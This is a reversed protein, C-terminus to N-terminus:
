LLQICCVADMGVTVWHIHNIQETIVGCNVELRPGRCDGEWMCKGGRSGCDESVTRNFIGMNSSFLLLIVILVVIVLAAITVTHLPLGEGRRGLNIRNGEM